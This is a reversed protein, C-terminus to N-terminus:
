PVLETCVSDIVFCGTGLIVFIIFHSVQSLNPRIDELPVLYIYRSGGLVTKLTSCNLIEGPPLRPRTIGGGVNVM